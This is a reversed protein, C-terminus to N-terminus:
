LLFKLGTIDDPVLARCKLKSTVLALRLRKCCVEMLQLALLEFDGPAGRCTQTLQARVSLTCQRTLLVEKKAGFPSGTTVLAGVGTVVRFGGQSCRCIWFGGVQRGILPAFRADCMDRRYTFKGKTRKDAATPIARLCRHLAMQAAREFGIGNRSCIHTLRNRHAQLCRITAKGKAATDAAGSPGKAQARGRFIALGTRDKCACALVYDNNRGLNRVINTDCDTASAQNLLFLMVLATLLTTQAM